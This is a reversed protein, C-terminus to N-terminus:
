YRYYWLVDLGTGLQGAETRLAWDQKFRWDITGSFGSHGETATSREEQKYSGEFWVDDSLPVAAAYDDRWVALLGEHYTVSAAFSALQLRDVLARAQAVWREANARGDLKNEVNALILYVAARLRDHGSAEAAVLARELAARAAAYDRDDDRAEGELRWAEAELARAPISTAQKAIEAAASAAEGYRGRRTHHGREYDEIQM